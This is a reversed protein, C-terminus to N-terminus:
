GLLRLKRTYQMGFYLVSHLTILKDNPRKSICKELLNFHQLVGERYNIFDSEVDIYSMYLSQYFVIFNGFMIKEDSSLYKKYNQLSDLLEDIGGSNDIISMLHKQLKSKKQM